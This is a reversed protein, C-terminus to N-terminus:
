KSAAARLCWSQLDRERSNADILEQAPEKGGLLAEFAKHPSKLHVNYVRM